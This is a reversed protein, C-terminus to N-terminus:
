KSKKDKAPELWKKLLKADEADLTYSKGVEYIKGKHSVASIVKYKDAM